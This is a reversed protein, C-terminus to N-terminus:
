PVEKSMVNKMEEIRQQRTKVKWEEGGNACDIETIEMVCLVFGVSKFNPKVALGEGCWGPLHDQIGDEVHAQTDNTSNDLNELRQGLNLSYWVDMVGEYDVTARHSTIYLLYCHRLESM